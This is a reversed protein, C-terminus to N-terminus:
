LDVSSASVGVIDDYAAAITCFSVPITVLLGLGLLL